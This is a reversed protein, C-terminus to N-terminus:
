EAPVFEAIKEIIVKAHASDRVNLVVSDEGAAGQVIIRRCTDEEEWEFAGVLDTAADKLFTEEAAVDDQLKALKAKKELYWRAMKAIKENSMKLRGQVM